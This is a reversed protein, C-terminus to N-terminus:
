SSHQRTTTDQELDIYQYQSTEPYSRRVPGSAFRADFLVATSSMRLCAWRRAFLRAKANSVGVPIGLLLKIRLGGPVSPEVVFPSAVTPERTSSHVCRESM